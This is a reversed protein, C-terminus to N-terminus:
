LSDNFNKLYHDLYTYDPMLEGKFTILARRIEPPFTHHSFESSSLADLIKPIYSLLVSGFYESSEAALECPLNDVALVLVGDEEFGSVVEDKEPNYVYVPNSPQTAYKTFEIAGEIDISIDGVVRLHTESKKERYLEQMLNRTILRPNKDTWFIANILIHMHPVYKEFQGKYKEPNVFYDKLDFGASSDIPEVTHEEKFVVKYIHKNSVDSCSRLELLEEPSIEIVPLFDVIEQSGKSVNGYGAFGIVLPVIRSDLGEATIREGVKRLSKEAEKLTGYHYTQLIDTFPNEIGEIQLKKGFAWLTDIMGALGAFRGFFILRRGQEDTIKEYDILNTELELYKKLSPMNYHQGKIVHSFNIYTKGKEIHYAPMEKVSLIVDAASLDDQVFAGAKQYEEDSFARIESPQIYVPVEYKEILTKVQIPTLPTRREWESKVEKRIGIPKRM